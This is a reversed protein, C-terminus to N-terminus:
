VGGGDFGPGAFVDTPVGGDLGLPAEDVRDSRAQTLLEIGRKSGITTAAIIDFVRGEYHLRRSAPVNLLDPDMDARYAMEWITQMSAVEQNAASRENATQDERRMWENGLSLWTEIPFRTSGPAALALYEITVYKDRHGASTRARPALVPRAFPM